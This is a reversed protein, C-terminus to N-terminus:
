NGGAQTAAQAGTVHAHLRKVANLASLIAGEQWAPLDSLHEGAMLTRQDMQLADERHADADRWIGYCGLVWPVRHWAVSVGSSFEQEYQPHIQAGFELARTIREDPAIASFQYAAAGWSYCGLLVGPGDSFYDTSPYSILT